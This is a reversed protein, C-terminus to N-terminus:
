CLLEFEGLGTEFKHIEICICTPNQNNKKKIIDFIGLKDVIYFVLKSTDFLLYISSIHSKYEYSLSIISYM